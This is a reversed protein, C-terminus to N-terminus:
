CCIIIGEYHLSYPDIGNGDESYEVWARLVSIRAFYRSFYMTALDNLRTQLRSTMVRADSNSFTIHHHNNTVLNTRFQHSNRSIRLRIPRCVDEENRNPYRQELVFEDPVPARTYQYVEEDVDSGQGRACHASM